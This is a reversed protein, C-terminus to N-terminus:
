RGQFVENRSGPTPSPTRNWFDSPITGPPAWEYEGDGGGRPGGGRGGVAGIRAIPNAILPISRITIGDKTGKDGFDMAVRVLTPLANTAFWEPIWENMRRNYFELAFVATKPALTITYPTKSIDLLTSQSLLLNRNEDVRFTVRRLPQGPFLGSGPFSEPLRTVFSLTAFNASTDAFFGYYLSNDAYMVAGGLAEELSRVAIRTRQVEAAATLAVRTGRMIASWSAYIAVLVFSFIGIALLVEVMTFGRNRKRFALQTKLHRTATTM